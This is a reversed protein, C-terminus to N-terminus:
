PTPSALCSPERIVPYCLRSARDLAEVHVVGEVCVGFGESVYESHGQMGSSRPLQMNSNGVSGARRSSDPSLYGGLRGM